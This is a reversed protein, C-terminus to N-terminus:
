ALGDKLEPALQSAHYYENVNDLSRFARFQQPMDKDAMKAEWAEFERKLFHADQLWLLLM